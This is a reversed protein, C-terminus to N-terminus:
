TPPSRGPETQFSPPTRASRVPRPRRRTRACTCTPRCGPRPTPRGSSRCCPRCGTRKCFEWLYFSLCHCEVRLPFVSRSVQSRARRKWTARKMDQRRCRWLHRRRRLRGACAVVPPCREAGVAVVEPGVVEARPRLRLVVAPTLQRRACLPSLHFLSCSRAKRLFGNRM